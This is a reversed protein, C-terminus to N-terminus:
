LLAFSCSLWGCGPASMLEVFSYLVGTTSGSTGSTASVVNGYGSDRLRECEREMQRCGGDAVATSGRSDDTSSGMASTAADPAVVAGVATFRGTGFSVDTTSSAARLGFRTSKSKDGPSAGCGVAEDEDPSTRGRTSGVAAGEEVVTSVVNGEDM